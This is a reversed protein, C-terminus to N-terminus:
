ATIKLIRIKTRKLIESAINLFNGRLLSAWFYPHWSFIRKILHPMRVNTDWPGGVDLIASWTGDFCADACEDNGFDRLNGYDAVRRALYKKIFFFKEIGRLNRVWTFYENRAMFYFYYPKLEMFKKIDLPTKHFIKANSHLLNKFGGKISRISYETDEWYAYFKENLYGIKRIVDSKILLATGWLCVNKGNRFENHVDLNNEKQYVITHNTWDIYSGCYQITNPQDYYYIIPSIIGVEPSSEAINVLKSLTDLEIITDNNLLWIYDAGNQMAYRMAVNNGGTYGLNEKNEIMIVQSYYERIVAVSNDTSANDVVVVQFNPYDLKFVSELCELTDKLGNWNLIVVFVKPYNM